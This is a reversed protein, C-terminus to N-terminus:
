LEVAVRIVLVAALMLSLFIIEARGFTTESSDDASINSSPSLPSSPFKKAPITSEYGRSLMAIHVREGRNYSRLFLAGLMHGLAPVNGIWFARYNRGVAARQMRRLEEIFVFSYRYVFSVILVFIQPVHLRAFATLMEPFTTTGGLVIICLVSLIAKVGANWLVLLGSTSVHAGGLSYGGAGSSDFFPIFIAVMLVFPIVIALRKLVFTLRLHALGVLFILMAVYLAFAWVARAPTTVVVIIFGLFAIIKVRPDLRQLVGKADM